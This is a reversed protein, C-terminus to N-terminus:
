SFGERGRSVYKASGPGAAKCCESVYPRAEISKLFDCRDQHEGNSACTPVSESKDFIVHLENLERFRDELMDCRSEIRDHLRCLASKFEKSFYSKSAIEKTADRIDKIEELM